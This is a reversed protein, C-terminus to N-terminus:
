QLRGPGLGPRRPQTQGERQSPPKLTEALHCCLLALGSPILASHARASPWGSAGLGRRGAPPASSIAEDCVAPEWSPEQGQGSQLHEPCLPEPPDQCVSPGLLHGQRHTGEGASHQGSAGDLGHGQGQRLAMGQPCSVAVLMSGAEARLTSRHCGSGGSGGCQLLSRLPGHQSPHGGGYSDMRPVRSLGVQDTEPSESPSNAVRPFAPRAPPARSPAGLASELVSGFWVSGVYLLACKILYQCNGTDWRIVIM